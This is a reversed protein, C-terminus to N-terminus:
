KTCMRMLLADEHDDTYYDTLREVVEFGHHRYFRQASRNTVRSELTVCARDIAPLQALAQDLLITGIGQGQREPLVAFNSIHMDKADQRCGIFGVLEGSIFGQIYFTRPHMVLDNFFDMQQWMVKDDYARYELAVMADIVPLSANSLTLQLTDDNALTFISQELTLRKYLQPETFQGWRKQFNTKLQQLNHKLRKIWGSLTSATRERPM